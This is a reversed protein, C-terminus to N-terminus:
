QLAVVGVALAGSPKQREPRATKHESSAIIVARAEHHARCRSAREVAHSPRSLLLHQMSLPYGPGRMPEWALQTLTMACHTPNLIPTQTITSGCRWGAPVAHITMAFFGNGITDYSSAEKLLSAPEAGKMCVTTLPSGVCPLRAPASKIAIHAGDELWAPRNVNM